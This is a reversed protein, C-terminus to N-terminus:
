TAATAPLTDDPVVARIRHNGFDAIYVAGDSGLAVGKPRDFAAELVEDSDNFTQKGCGALTSVAGKATVMRIRNNGSDAVYVTGNASVALGLPRDFLSKTGDLSDCYGQGDVVGALTTVGGGPTLKRIVHTGFDSIYVAGDPGVAIGSPRTFRAHRPSASDLHGRGGGGAVITVDKSTIAHICHWGEDAIYVTGNPAVAVGRPQSHGMHVGKATDLKLTIREMTRNDRIVCIAGIEPEAIYM